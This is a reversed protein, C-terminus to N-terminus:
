AVLTRHQQSVKLVNVLAKAAINRAAQIDAHATHGCSRCRFESQRKRNAKECHGCEECTRSTNRPDVVVVPLGHLKAKYTLFQRLQSFAWGGMKSRQRKNCNACLAQYKGQSGSEAVRKYLSHQSTLTLREQKGDGNIHDIQIARIDSDYGCRACCGGLAAIAKAKMKIRISRCRERNKEAHKERHKKRSARSSANRLERYKDREEKTKVLLRERNKLLIRESNKRYYVQHRTLPKDADM